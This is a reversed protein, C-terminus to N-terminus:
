LEKREYQIRTKRKALPRALIGGILSCLGAVAWVVTFINPMTLGLYEWDVIGSFSFAVIIMSIIGAVIGFASPDVSGAYRFVGWSKDERYMDVITRSYASGFSFLIMFGLFFALAVAVGIMIPNYLFGLPISGVLLLLALGYLRLVLTRISDKEM